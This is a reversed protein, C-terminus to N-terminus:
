FSKAWICFLNIKTKTTKWKIERMKGIGKFQLKTQNHAVLAMEFAKNKMSHSFFSNAHEIHIFSAFSVWLEYCFNLMLRVILVDQLRCATSIWHFREHSSRKYKFALQVHYDYRVNFMSCAYRWHKSKHLTFNVGYEREITQQKKKKRNIKNIYVCVLHISQMFPILHLCRKWVLIWKLRFDILRIDMLLPQDSANVPEM